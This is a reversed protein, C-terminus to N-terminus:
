LIHAIQNHTKGNPSIRTFKHINHHPFITSKVTLDNSTAFNIVRVMIMVLKMYVRMRLQQNSFTKGVQKPM